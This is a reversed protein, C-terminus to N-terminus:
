ISMIKIKIDLNYKLIYEQDPLGSFANPILQEAYLLFHGLVM